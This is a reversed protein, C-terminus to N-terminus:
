LLGQNGMEEIIQRTMTSAYFGAGGNELFVCIVYKPHEFPFFGTFWGHSVKGAVQATGTKGAVSVPLNGLNSATGTSSNVVGRMGKRISELIGDKLSLSVSKRQYVSVDRADIAKIIYPTVLNGGNAFVATMRAVQLPTVLLDGQGISFNATDGDFWGSKKWSPTPVFGAVEYPIDLGSKKGFGFRLAYDHIMKPGTLLGTRYFFVDCSHIIAQILDQENHTSWCAFDRNGIRASGPCYFSTSTNIKGNELAAAAVVMKFVSGPPYAGSMSRNILPSLSDKFLGNIGSNSKQIFVSPNFGPANAMALIQGTEPEMIVVSGTKEQLKDEVIKQIKLNITLQIDKGNKPPKFGLVRVMKGRHDVEVSMGGEEQRLYYDYKEEIGGFGVIDKTKYGYDELKTLRWRDIENLYGLFHCGLKGFPYDRLPHLQIVIGGFDSKLEELAVAKKIDINEALLTPTFSAARNNKYARRLDKQSLGLVPSIGALTKELQQKDQPLILVDYSLRIGAIINGETDLIRGRSGEQPLLRVCNKNSLLRYNRGHIVCLNFLGSFLFLFSLILAFNIFKIRAM